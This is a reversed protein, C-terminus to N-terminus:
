LWRVADDLSRRDKRRPTLPEVPNGVIISTFIKFGEPVGVLAVMDKQFSLGRTWSTFQSAMGCATAELAMAMLACACAESSEPYRDDQLVVIAVGDAPIVDGSAQRLLGAEYDPQKLRKNLKGFLGRMKMFTDRSKNCGARLLEYKERDRIVVFRVPQTNFLSPANRGADVIQRLAMPPFPGGAFSRAHSTRSLLALAGPVDDVIAM